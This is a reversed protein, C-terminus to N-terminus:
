GGDDANRSHVTLKKSSIGFIDKLSRVRGEEEESSPSSSAAAARTTTWPWTWGWEATSASGRALVQAMFSGDNHLM